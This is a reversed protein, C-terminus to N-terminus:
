NEYRNYRHNHAIGNPGTDRVARREHSRLDFNVCQWM